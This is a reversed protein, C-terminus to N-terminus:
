GMETQIPSKRKRKRMCRGRRYKVEASASGSAFCPQSHTVSLSSENAVTNDHLREEDVVLRSQAALDQLGVANKSPFSAPSRM